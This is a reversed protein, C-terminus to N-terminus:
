IGPLVQLARLRQVVKLLLKKVGQQMLHNMTLKRQM